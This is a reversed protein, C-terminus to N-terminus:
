CGLVRLTRFSPFKAGHVSHKHYLQLSPLCYVLGSSTIAKIMTSHDHVSIKLHDADLMTAQQM